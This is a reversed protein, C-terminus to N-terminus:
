KEGAIWFLSKRRLLRITINFVVGLLALIGLIAFVGPINMQFQAQLLLVGLGLEAGVFEGVIAGLLSVVVAVELGAFISPLATPIVLHYLRKLRSARIAYFLEYHDASVSRIGSITNVLVPFFCLLSVIVVKSTLGFGFWVLLLPAIAVKPMCQLAIIYPYMMNMLVRSETLVVGVLFGLGSGIVLGLVAEHLTVLTNTWYVSLTSPDGYIRVISSLPPLIYDPIKFYGPGYEWFIAFAILFLIAPVHSLPKRM